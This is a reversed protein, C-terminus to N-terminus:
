TCAPRLDAALSWCRRAQDYDDDGPLHVAKAVNRLAATTSQASM